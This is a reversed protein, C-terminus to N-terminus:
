SVFLIGTEAMVTYGELKAVPPTKSNASAPAPAPAPVKGTKGDTAAEDSKKHEFRCRKGFRGNGFKQFQKCIEGTRNPCAETSHDQSKCVACAGSKKKQEAKKASDNSQGAKADHQASKKISEVRARTKPQDKMLANKTDRMIM